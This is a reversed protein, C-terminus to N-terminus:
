IAEDIQDLHNTSGFVKCNPICLNGDLYDLLINTIELSQGRSDGERRSVIQEIEGINVACPQWPILRARDFVRTVM